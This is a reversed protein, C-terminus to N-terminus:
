SGREFDNSLMPPRADSALTPEDGFDPLYGCRPCAGPLYRGSLLDDMPVDAVRAVRLALSATVPRRGGAIKEVSVTSCRLADAVAAWTGLRRRLHRMTTRVYNQEKEDLDSM